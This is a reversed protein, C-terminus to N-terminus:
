LPTNDKVEAQDRVDPVQQCRFETKQCIADKRLFKCISRAIWFEALPPLLVQLWIVSTETMRQSMIARLISRDFRSGIGDPIKAKSWSEGTALQQHVLTSDSKSDNWTTSVRAHQKSKRKQLVKGKARAWSQEVKGSDSQFQASIKM